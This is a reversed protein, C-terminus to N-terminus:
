SSVHHNFTRLASEFSLVSVSKLNMPNPTVIMELIVKWFVYICRKRLLMTPLDALPIFASRSRFFSSPLHTLRTFAFRKRLLM